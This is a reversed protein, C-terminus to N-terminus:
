RRCHARQTAPLPPQSPNLAHRSTPSGAGCLITAIEHGPAGGKQVVVRRPGHEIALRYQTGAAAPGAFGLLLALALLLAM